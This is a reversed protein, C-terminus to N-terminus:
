VPCSYKGDADTSLLPLLPSHHLLVLAKLDSMHRKVGSQCVYKRKPRPLMDVPVSNTKFYSRCRSASTSSSETSSKISVWPETLVRLFRHQQSMQSLINYNTLLVCQGCQKQNPLLVYGWKNMFKSTPM